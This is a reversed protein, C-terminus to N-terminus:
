ACPFVSVFAVTFNRSFFGRDLFIKFNYTYYDWCYELRRASEKQVFTRPIMDRSPGHRLCLEIPSHVELRTTM